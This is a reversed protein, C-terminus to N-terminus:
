AGEGGEPDPTTVLPAEPVYRSGPLGWERFFEGTKRCLDVNLNSGARIIANARRRARTVAAPSAPGGDPGAVLPAWPGADIGAARRRELDDLVAGRAAFSLFTIREVRRGATRQQYRVAMPEAEPDPDPDPVLWGDADLSGLDGVRLRLLEALHLGSGIPALVLVRDAADPLGAEPLRRAAVATPLPRWPVPVGGLRFWVKPGMALGAVAADPHGDLAHAFAVLSHDAVAPDARAAALLAELDHHGTLLRFRDLSAVLTRVWSPERCREALVDAMRGVSPVELLAQERRGALAR